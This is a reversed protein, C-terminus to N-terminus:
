GARDFFRKSRMKATTDVLRQGVAALTGGVQVDGEYAVQTGSGERTLNLRGDGEHLRDQKQRRRHAPFRSSPEPEVIRITGDFLGSLSGLAIRMKKM